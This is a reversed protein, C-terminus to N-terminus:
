VAVGALVRGEEQGLAPALHPALAPDGSGGSRWTHGQTLGEGQSPRLKKRHTPSLPVMKPSFPHGQTAAAM